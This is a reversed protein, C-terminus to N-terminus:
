LVLWTFRAEDVIVSVLMFDFSIYEIVDAVTQNWKDNPDDPESSNLHILPIREPALNQGFVNLTQRCLLPVLNNEEHVSRKQVTRLQLPTTTDETQSVNSMPVHPVYWAKEGAVPTIRTEQHTRKRPKLIGAFDTKFQAFRHNGKKGSTCLVNMRKPVITALFFFCVQTQAENRGGSRVQTHSGPSREELSM